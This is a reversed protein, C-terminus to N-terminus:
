RLAPHLVCVSPLALVSAFCLSAARLLVLFVLCASFLAPSCPFSLSCFLCYALLCVFLCALLCPLLCALLSALFGFNMLFTMLIDDLIDDLFLELNSRCIEEFDGGFQEKKSGM